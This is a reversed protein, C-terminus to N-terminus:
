AVGGPRDKEGMHQAVPHRGRNRIDPQGQREHEGARQDHLFKEVERTDPQQEPVGRLSTVIRHQEPDHQHHSRRHDRSRQQGVDAVDHQIWPHAIDASSGVPSTSAVPKPASAPGTPPNAGLSGALRIRSIDLAAQCFGRATAPSTMMTASVSKQKTPGSSYRVLWVAVLRSSSFWGGDAAWRSPVEGSPRSSIPWSMTPPWTVRSTPNATAMKDVANPM